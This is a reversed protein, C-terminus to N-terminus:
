MPAHEGAETVRAAGAERLVRKVTEFTIGFSALSQVGGVRVHPGLVIRWRDSQRRSVVYIGYRLFNSFQSFPRGNKGLAEPSFVMLRQLGPAAAPLEGVCEILGRSNLHLEPALRSTWFPGEFRVETPSFTIFVHRRVILGL